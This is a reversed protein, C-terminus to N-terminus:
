EVVITQHITYKKNNSLTLTVKIIHEGASLNGVNSESQNLGDFSWTKSKILSNGPIIDLYFSDGVSYKDEIRLFPMDFPAYSYPIASGMEKDCYVNKWESATNKYQLVIRDGIAKDVTIECTANRLSYTSQAGISINKKYLEEKLEGKYDVLAIRIEDNYNVFWNENYLGTVNVTFASNCNDTTTVSLGKGGGYSTVTIPGGKQVGSTGDRDPELGITISQGENFIYSSPIQMDVAFYGNDDGEWGWNIHLYNKSNYGDCLFQHGGDRESYGGFPVVRDADIEAKIIRIFEADSACADRYINQANASYGMKEYLRRPISEGYAGTGTNYNYNCQMLVGCDYMLTSVADKQTTTRIASTELPMQSYDYSHDNAIAPITVSKNYDTRYTYGEIVGTAKAPWEHYRLVIATTTAVCGTVSTYTRGDEVVKPCKLNYPNDQGWNATKLLKQTEGKTRIGASKWLKNVESTATIKDKRLAKISKSYTIDLFSSIHKPMNKVKFSGTESYGLIPNISNEAAILLWGGETANVYYFTQDENIEITYDTSNFWRTAIEEVQQRSVFDAFCFVSSCIILIITLITKKM